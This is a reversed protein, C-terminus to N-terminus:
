TRSAAKRDRKRAYMRTDAEAILADFSYPAPGATVASGITVGVSLVADGWVVPATLAAELREGLAAAEPAGADPCFVLFEDGGIRAVADGPRVVARLRDAVCRLVADGAEHGYGDKVPKFDDLDCYLVAFGGAPRAMAEDAVEFLRRRNMLGTLEDHAAHFALVRQDQARQRTLQGIRMLVLPVMLMPGLCLLLADAPGGRLAQVGGVVPVLVMAGGLLGLRLPPAAARRGAEPEMLTVVSPHLAAGGLCVYGVAFCLAPLGALQAGGGPPDLVLHVVLVGAITWGLALFLLGLAAQQLGGARAIRLLAGFVALLVFLQVIVLLQLGPAAGAALLRPRLLFAWIPAAAAIGIVAADIVGGGDHPAHRLVVLMSASLLALYGVVQVLEVGISRPFAEARSSWSAVWWTANVVTLLTVGLAVLLWTRQDRVRNLRMGAGIAVVAWVGATLLALPRARDGAFCLAGLLLSLVPVLVLAAAGRVRLRAWAGSVPETLM